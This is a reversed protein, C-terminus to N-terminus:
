KKSKIASNIRKRILQRSLLPLFEGLVPGKIRGTLALRLPLFVEKGGGGMAKVLAKIWCEVSEEDFGEGEEEEEPLVELAVRLVGLDKEGWEGALGEGEEEEEGCVVRAWYLIDGEREINGRVIDWFVCVDKLLLKEKRLVSEVEEYSWDRVYLAELHRLSKKDFRFAQSSLSERFRSEGEELFSGWFDGEIAKGGEGLLLLQLLSRWGIGEERLGRITLSGLRKSLPEGEGGVMLPIHGFAIKSEEGGLARLIELQVATNVLHDQGRIIDTVGFDRDDIVSCLTYLVSGDARVLVPDSVHSTDYKRWSMVKDEWSETGRSLLFRYHPRRGRLAEKEGLALSLAERDYIPPLGREQQRLRKRELEDPTEFCAYLRGEEKLFAIVEDYRKKRRSQFEERDVSLRLWALDERIAEIYETRVRRSDTDDFRLIVEGGGRRALLWNLAFVRVNGVHLLGTPSPAFRVVPKRLVGSMGEEEEEEGWSVGM